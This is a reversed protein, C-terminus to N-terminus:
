AHAEVKSSYATHSKRPEFYVKFGDDPHPTPIPRIKLTYKASSLRIDFFHILTAANMMVLLQAFDAGLCRHPGVGFPVFAGPQRHEERDPLYRDIDFQTPNPFYEELYNPVSTAVMVQEGAPIRYGEFDFSNSVTRVISPVVPWMRLSEMMARSIVDFKALASKGNLHGEFVSEAEERSREMLEPQKLLAYLLFSTAVAATELGAFFPGLTTLRFDTEPVLNPNDRHMKLCMDILDPNRNQRLHPDHAEIVKQSFEKIRRHARNVRPRALEMSPRAKTVRLLLMTELFLILDDIYDAPSVGTTLVGIQESVLRQMTYFARRPKDDSSNGIERKVISVVKDLQDSVMRQSYGDRMGKRLKTHDDGDVSVMSRSAKFEQDFDQWTEKSRLYDRGHRHVFNNANAGALVTYERNLVKVRYVPGLKLYQETLFQGVNGAMEIANGLVPLGRVTPTPTRMRIGRRITAVLFQLNPDSHITHEVSGEIEQYEDTSMLEDFGGCAEAIAILTSDRQNAESGSLLTGMLRARVESVETDISSPYKRTDRVWRSRKFVGDEDVRLVGSSVLRRLGLDRLVDARLAAHKLWHMLERSRKSQAIDSLTPDLLYEGTPSDDLVTLKSESISVKELALLDAIVGAATSWDLRDPEMHVFSGENEDIFLVILEETITLNAM